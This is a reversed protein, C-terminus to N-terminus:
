YRAVVPTPTVYFLYNLGVKVTSIQQSNSTFSAPLGGGPVPNVVLLNSGPFDYFNYEGFVTWHPDFMYEIGVGVTYGARNESVINPSFFNFANTLDWRNHTFAAGGKVYFLAQNNNFATIGVRGTASALWNTTVGISDFGPPVGFVLALPDQNRGTFDTWAADGQVGFVWRSAYQYNCGVQGGILGGSTDIAGSARGNIPPASSGSITPVVSGTQTHRNRGWGFGVHGGVYCGTWSFIPPAIIPAKVPLDASKAESAAFLALASVTALLVRTTSVAESM